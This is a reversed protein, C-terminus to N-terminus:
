RSEEMLRTMGARDLKGLPTRPLEPVTRVEELRETGLSSANFAVRLTELSAPESEGVLLLKTEKRDDAMPWIVIRNAPIGAALALSELREQLAAINVLEGLVKVFSAERGLFRLFRRTGHWSLQAKDRTRLGRSEELPQWQWVAGQKFAYGKALAHGKVALTDDADTQLDWIPLVELREPDFGQDLHDLPETAIQSATETMGYSQLVPWGLAQARLGIEKALAGGGVVVARLDAPATLRAQVLDFVQTPVLSALTIKQTTCIEVFRAANWKEDSSIFSAGNEHCRALISFGGVHHLPLAILWRDQATAKLHANVAHASTLFGERSLGVWKPSGESGSTQFFLLGQTAENSSAFDALGEADQSRSPNVAIHVDSSQWFAQSDHLPSM